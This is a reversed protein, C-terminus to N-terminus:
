DQDDIRKNKFFHELLDKYNYKDDAKFITTKSPYVKTLDIKSVCAGTNEENLIYVVRSIRSQLIASMCMSCPELTVYLTCNDLRWNKITKSAKRIVNIEAHSTVDHNKEKKNYSKAIVEHTFNDVLVAGVPIEQNLYAKKAENVAVKLYYEDSINIM